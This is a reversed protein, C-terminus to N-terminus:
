RKRRAPTIGYGSSLVRPMQNAIREDIIAYLARQGDPTAREETRVATNPANNIINVQMGSAGSRPAATAARAPINAAGYLGSPAPGGSGSGGFLSGFLSGFLGQGGGGGFLTKFASNLDLRILDSLMGNVMSKFAKGLSETGDIFSMIGDTLQSAFMDAIESGGEKVKNMGDEVAKLPGPLTAFAPGAALFADQMKQLQKAYNSHNIKGLALEANLVRLGAQYTKLPQLAATVDTGVKRIARGAGTTAKGLEATKQKTPDVVTGLNDLYGKMDVLNGSLASMDFGLGQMVDKGVASLQPFVEKVKAWMAEMGAKLNDLSDTAYAVGAALALFVMLNARSIASFAGMIIGTARVSKAFYIFSMATGLVKQAFVAIGFVALYHGLIAANDYVFAIARGVGEFVNAMVNIAGAMFAGISKSLGDAGLILAGIRDAFTILAANMGADGIKLAFGHWATSLRDMAQKVPPSAKNIEILGRVFSQLMNGGIVGAAMSKIQNMSRTLSAMGRQVSSFAGATKDKGVIDIGLRQTTAM